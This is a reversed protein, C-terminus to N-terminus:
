SLRSEVEVRINGFTQADFLTAISMQIGLKEQVEMALCVLIKSDGGDLFFNSSSTVSDVNLLRCWIEALCTETTKTM